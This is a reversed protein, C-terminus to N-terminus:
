CRRGGLVPAIEQGIFGVHRSEFEGRVPAIHDHELRITDTVVHLIRGQHMIHHSQGRSPIPSPSQEPPPWTPYSDFPYHYHTKYQQKEQPASNM